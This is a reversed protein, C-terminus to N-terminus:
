GDDLRQFRSKCDVLALRQHVRDRSLVLTELRYQGEDLLVARGHHGDGVVLGADGLIGVHAELHRLLDHLAGGIVADRRAIDHDVREHHRDTRDVLRAALDHVQELAQLVLQLHIGGAACGIHAEAQGRALADTRGKQGHRDARSEGGRDHVRHVQLDDLRAHGGVDHHTM